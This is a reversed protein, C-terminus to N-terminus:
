CSPAAPTPRVAAAPTDSMFAASAQLGALPDFGVGDDGAQAEVGATLRARWKGDDHSLRVTFAGDSSEYAFTVARSMDIQRAVEAPAIEKVLGVVQQATLPSKTVARAAGQTELKAPDGEALTLAEARNSIVAALLRDLQAM